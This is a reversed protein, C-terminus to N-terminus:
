YGCDLVDEYGNLRAWEEIDDDSLFTLLSSAIEIFDANTEILFDWIRKENPRTDKYDFSM